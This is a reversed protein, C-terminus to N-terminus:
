HGSPHVSLAMRIESLAPGGWHLRDQLQYLTHGREPELM